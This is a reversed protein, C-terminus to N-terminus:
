HRTVPLNANQWATMGGSLFSVNEFDKARLKAGEQPATQGNACVFVIPRGQYSKLRDLSTAMQTHPINVAGIIHGKAFANADRVDIIVPEERNILHTLEQPQLRPVGQIRGRVEEFLIVAILLIFALWLIWHNVVFQLYQDV